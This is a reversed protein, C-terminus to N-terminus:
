TERRPPAHASEARKTASGKEDKQAGSASANAEDEIKARAGRQRAKPACFNLLIRTVNQIIGSKEAISFLSEWL